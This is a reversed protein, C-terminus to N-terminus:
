FSAFACRLQGTFAVTSRGGVARASASYSTLRESSGTELQGAVRPRARAPSKQGPAFGAAM